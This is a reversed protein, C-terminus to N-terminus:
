LPYINVLPQQTRTFKGDEILINSMQRHFYAKGSTRGRSVNPAGLASSFSTVSKEGERRFGPIVPGGIVAIQAEKGRFVLLTWIRMPLGKSFKGFACVM